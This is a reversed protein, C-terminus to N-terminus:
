TVPVPPAPAPNSAQEPHVGDMLVYLSAVVPVTFLPQVFGVFMVLVMVVPVPTSTNTRPDLLTCSGKKFQDVGSSAVM